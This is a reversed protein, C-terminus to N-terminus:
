GPRKTLICGVKQWLERPDIPRGKRLRFSKMAKYIVNNVEPKEIQYNDKCYEYLDQRSNWTFNEIRQKKKDEDFPTMM